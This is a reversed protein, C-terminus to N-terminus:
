FSVLTIENQLRRDFANARLKLNELFQEYFAIEGSASNGCSNANPVACRANHNQLIARLTRATADLVENMHITHRTIEHAVYYRTKMATKDEQQGPINILPRTQKDM